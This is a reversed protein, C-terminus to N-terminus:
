SPNSRPADNCCEIRTELDGVQFRVEAVPLKSKSGYYLSEWGEVIQTDIRCSSSFQIRCLTRQDKVGILQNDNLQWNLNPSLRWRCVCDNERNKGGLSRGNRSQGVQSQVGLLQISDRIIYRSGDRDVQRQHRYPAQTNYRVTLRLQTPRIIREEVTPWHFWLFNPGKTMQEQSAQQVSNHSAVSYFLKKWQPDRHYYYYSGADRLINEHEHWLDVHQMDCQGPRDRYKSGKLLMYGHEHRLIAFGGLPADWVLEEASLTESRKAKMATEGALWVSKERALGYERDRVPIGLLTSGALLVPRYDLYDSCSLPLVNAGDNSGLNPVRGTSDDVFRDLWRIACGVREITERCLPDNHIEGLRIAWLMDDLMVRHYSMSHQVYSGDEYIQRSIESELTTKGQRRWRASEPLEPFLLGVTWLGVAESLAHNNEQSIAYNINSAIRKASQWALLDVKKLREPTTAPSELVAMVSFLVAMLRFAVEQGCGWAVTQNVPNQEIWAEILTWAAEAFTEDGDYRYARTLSYLLTLRSPEWVLKIDDREGGSRTTRPWLPGVPWDIQNTVDRNFNPPWGVSSTWHSFMPYHGALASHIPAVVQEDWISQPVIARLSESHPMLFFRESRQHWQSLRDSPSLSALPCRESAYLSPSQSRILRGSRIAFSQVLRRPVNDWGVGKAIWYAQILPNM